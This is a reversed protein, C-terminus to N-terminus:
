PETKVGQRAVAQVYMERLAFFLHQYIGEDGESPPAFYLGSTGMHDILQSFRTGEFQEPLNRHDTKVFRRVQSRLGRVFRSAQVYYEGREPGTPNGLKQRCEQDFRQLLAETAGDLAQKHRYDVKGEKRLQELARDRCKEYNERVDSFAPDQLLYPWDEKLPVAQRARFKAGGGNPRDTLWLHTLMADNLDPNDKSPGETVMDMFESNESMRREFVRILLWNLEDTITGRKLIEYSLNEVREKTRKEAEEWRKEQSPYVLQLYQRNLLKREFFTKVYLVSNDLHKRNADEAISWAIASDVRLSGVARLFDAEAHVGASYV